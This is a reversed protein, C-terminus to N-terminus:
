RKMKLDLCEERCQKLIKSAAGLAIYMVASWNMSKGKAQEGGFGTNKSKGCVRLL